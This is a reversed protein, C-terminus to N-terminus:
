DDEGGFTIGRDSDIAQRYAVAAAAFATARDFAYVRGQSGSAIVTHYSISWYWGGGIRESRRGIHIEPQAIYAPLELITEIVVALAAEATPADPHEPSAALSM